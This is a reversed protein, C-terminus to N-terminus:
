RVSEQILQLNCEAQFDSDKEVIPNFRIIMFITTPSRSVLDTLGLKELGYANGGSYQVIGYKISGNM